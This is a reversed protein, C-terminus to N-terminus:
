SIEIIDITLLRYSGMDTDHSIRGRITVQTGVSLKKIYELQDSSKIKCWLEDEWWTGNNILMIIKGYSFLGGEEIESITATIEVYMDTYKENASIENNRFDDFISRPSTKFYSYYKTSSGTTANCKTCKQGKTGEKYYTAETIISDEYNHGTAPINEKVKHNCVTCTQSKSGNATCTPETDTTWNGYTHKGTREVTREETASCVTCTAVEVGDAGCTVQVSTVWNGMSHGLPEGDTKECVSCTKPDTCSADIWNHGLPEGETLSCGACSRPSECSADIWNHGLAEGDVINCSSCYKAELCTADVWTHGLANEGDKGCITCHSSETCTNTTWTHGLPNGQMKNCLSCHKAHECDADIWIHELPNGETKECLSCYRPTDCTAEQWEHFCIMNLVFFILIIVLPVCGVIIKGKKSLGNWINVCKYGFAKLSQLSNDKISNWTVDKFYKTKILNYLAVTKEKLFVFSAIIAKKLFKIAKDFIDESPGSYGLSNKPALPIDFSENSNDEKTSQESAEPVLPKQPTKKKSTSNTKKPTPKTESTKEASNNSTTPDAKGLIEKKKLNFEDETLVGADFLEKLKKLADLQESMSMKDAM